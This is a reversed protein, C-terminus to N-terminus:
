NSDDSLISLQRSGKRTIYFLEREYETKRRILRFSSELKQLSKDEYTWFWDPWTSDIKCSLTWFQPLRGQTIFVDHYHM